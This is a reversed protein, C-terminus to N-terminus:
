YLYRLIKFKEKKSMHMIIIGFVTSYIVTVGFKFWAQYAIASDFGMAGLAFDLFEELFFWHVFYVLASLTRLNKYIERPKTEAKIALSFLCFMVIPFMITQILAGAEDNRYRFVGIGIFVAYVAVFMIASKAVSFCAKNDAIFYGVFIYVPLRFLPNLLSEPIHEGIFRFINYATSDSEFAAYNESLCYILYFVTSIFFLIRFDFKKLCLYIIALSIILAQVYWLHWFSTGDIFISKIWEVVTQFFTYGRVLMGRYFTPILYVASWVAYLLVLRKIYKIFCDKKQVDDSCKLLKYFFFFSSTVIFFPVALGCLNNRIFLFVTQNNMAGARHMFVVSFAFLLRLIDVAGYQKKNANGAVTECQM